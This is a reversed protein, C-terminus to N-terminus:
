KNQNDTMKFDFFDVLVTCLRIRSPSVESQFYASLWLLPLRRYILHNLGNRKTWDIFMVVWAM